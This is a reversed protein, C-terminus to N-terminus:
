GGFFYLATLVTALLVIVLHERAGLRPSMLGLAVFLFIIALMLTM